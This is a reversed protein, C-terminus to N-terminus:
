FRYNVGFTVSHLANDWDYDVRYGQQLVLPNDPLATVSSDGVDIYLYEVKVSWHRGIAYEAGGGGTWGVETGSRSNNYNAVPFIILGAIQEVHAYAFGGTGYLLLRRVPTVGFRGRVTGFWDIEHRFTQTADLM